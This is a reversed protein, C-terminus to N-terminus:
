AANFDSLLIFPNTANGTYVGVISVVANQWIEEGEDASNDMALQRVQSINKAVIVHGCYIDHGKEKHKILYIQM